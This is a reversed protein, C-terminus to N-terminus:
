SMIEFNKPIGLYKSHNAYQLLIDIQKRVIEWLISGIFPMTDVLVWELRKDLFIGRRVCNRSSTLLKRAKM